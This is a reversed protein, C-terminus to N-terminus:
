VRYLDHKGLTVSPLVSFLVLNTRIRNIKGLPAM